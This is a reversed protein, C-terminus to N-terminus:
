IFSEDESDEDVHDASRPQPSVPPVQRQRTPAPPRVRVTSTSSGAAANVSREGSSTRSPGREGSPPPPDPTEPLSRRGGSRRPLHTRARAPEVVAEITPSVRNAGRRESGVQGTKAERSGGDAARTGDTTAPSPVKASPHDSQQSNETPHPNGQPLPPLAHDHDDDEPPVTPLGDDDGAVVRLYAGNDSESRASAVSPRGGVDVSIYSDSDDSQDRFPAGGVAKLFSEEDPSAAALPRTPDRPAPDPSDVSAVTEAVARTISAQVAVEQEKEAAEAAAAAAANETKREEDWADWSRDGRAENYLAPDLYQSPDFRM